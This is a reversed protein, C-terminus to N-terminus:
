RSAIRKLLEQQKKYADPISGNALSNTCDDLAKKYDGLEMYAYCRNNFAVAVDDKNASRLDYLYDYKNLVNLAATNDNQGFYIMSLDIAASVRWNSKSEAVVSLERIANADDHLERYASGRWYRANLGNEQDDVIDACEAVAADYNKLWYSDYCVWLQAEVGGGLAVAERAVEASDAYRSRKAYVKALQEKIEATAADQESSSPFKSLPLDRLAEQYKTLANDLNGQRLWTKAVLSDIMYHNRSKSDENLRTDSDYANAAALLTPGVYTESGATDIMSSILKEVAKTAIYDNKKGLAALAEVLRSEREVTANAKMFERVCESLQQYDSNESNDSCQTSATSLLYRYVDIDLLKSAIGDPDTSRFHDVFSFMTDINGGWKPQLTSLLLDYPPFFAPFKSVSEQFALGMKDSYGYGRLIELRLSQLFPEASDLQLARNVDAEGNGMADVFAQMGDESVTNVYGDGRRLWGLDHYFKARVLHAPMSDPSKEVWANLQKGFNPDTPDILADLFKAVPDINPSPSHGLKLVSQTARRATEFDSSLIAARVIKASEYPHAGSTRNQPDFALSVSRRLDWSGFASEVGAMSKPQFKIVVAVGILLALMASLIISRRTM